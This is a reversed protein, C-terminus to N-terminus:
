YTIRITVEAIETNKELAIIAYSHESDSSDYGSFTPFVARNKLCNPKRVVRGSIRRLLTLRNPASRRKYRDQAFRKSDICM